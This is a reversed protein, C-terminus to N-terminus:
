TRYQIGSLSVCKSLVTVLVAARLVGGGADAHAGELAELADVDCGVVRYASAFVTWSVLGDLEGREVAGHGVHEIDPGAVGFFCGTCEDGCEVDLVCRGDDGEGALVELLVGGM